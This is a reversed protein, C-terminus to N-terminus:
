TQIAADTKKKARLRSMGLMLAMLGFAGIAWVAMNGSSYPITREADDTPFVLGALPVYIIVFLVAALVTQLFAGMVLSVRGAFLAVGLGIGSAMLLWFIGQTGFTRTMPQLSEDTYYAHQFSVSLYGGVAGLGAGLVIAICTITLTRGVGGRSVGEVLAFVLAALGGMILGFAMLEKRETEMGAIQQQKLEDETPSRENKVPIEPVEFYPHAWHLIQWAILGVLLGAMGMRLPGAVLGASASETVTGSANAPPAPAQESPQQTTGNEENTM